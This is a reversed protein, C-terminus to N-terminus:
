RRSANCMPRLELPRETRALAQSLDRLTRATRFAQRYRCGQRAGAGPHRRVVGAIRLRHSIVLMTRGHAMRALNANIIAESEPDLASTAEDLILIPPDILLARAIALRQRQGGSLNSSSENIHTEYGRPLRDIFEEAGALWRRASWRTSRPMPRPSRSTRASRAASCSTKRSCSASIAVCTVSTTNASM